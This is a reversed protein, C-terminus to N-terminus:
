EAVIAIANSNHGIIQEGLILETTTTSSSVIKSLELIEDIGSNMSASAEYITADKKATISYRM